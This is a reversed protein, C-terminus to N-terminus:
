GVREAVWAPFAEWPLAVHGGPLQTPESVRCVLIGTDADDGALECFRSLTSAHGGRPTATLKAEIPVVKTGIQVIADVELGDHSRWHSVAPRRGANTFARVIEGVVWGEFLPGGLPGAVASAGDPLRTLECVLATDALYLKPSKVVRKGYNRHWPPVVHALYAAELLGVWSRATPHSIGVDRGLSTLNLEQGHRAACLAVFQEFARLDNIAHLQRVDREVYTRLYSRIWLDRREPHLAPEPYTGVFLADKLSRPTPLETESLPWLDLLAVRGALSESVGRMIEFQQSGTLSWRGLRERDADIRMKLHPLLEPVYQIEDLVVPGDGLGDLFGRPDDHALDRVLPDDFTVYRASDGHHHRLLTSKGSQRPGTVLVAAFRSLADRLAGEIHRPVYM